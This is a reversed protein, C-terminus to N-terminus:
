KVACRGTPIKLSEGARIYYSQDIGNLTQLEAVPVCANRALSYVTDGPVITHNQFGDFGSPINQPAIPVPTPNGYANGYGSTPPTNPTPTQAPEAAPYGNVAYYGPTGIEGLSQTNEVLGTNGGLGSATQPSQSPINPTSAPLSAPSQYPTAITPGQSSAAVPVAVPDCDITKDAIGYGAAGGVVAGAVTGVTKNKKGAIKRGAIAGVVGGAATGIMKRTGERNLCEQNVRSYRAPQNYSVPAASQTQYSVTRVNASQGYPNSGKYKTSQQYIPNSPTSSCAALIATSFGAIFIKGLYM